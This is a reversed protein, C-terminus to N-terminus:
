IVRERGGQRDKERGMQREREREGKYMGRKEIERGIDEERGKEVDSRSM